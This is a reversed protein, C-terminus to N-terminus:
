INWFLFFALVTKKSFFILILSCPTETIEIGKLSQHNEHFFQCLVPSAKALEKVKEYTKQVTTIYWFQKKSNSQSDRTYTPMYGSEYGILM